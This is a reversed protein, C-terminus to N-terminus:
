GGKKQTWRRWITMVADKNVERYHSLGDRTLYARGDLFEDGLQDLRTQLATELQAQLDAYAPDDILNHLQYPDTENDYLLWPGDLDRVYTYRTTRLGRYPKIDHVLTEWSPALMNLLAAEAGDLPQQRRLTPAHNRGDIGEPIPLDCLGLLTPMIDPADIPLPLEWGEEDHLQPWHLLFPVRISEEWPYGKTQKGHCELMDGHDATVIFITDDMIGAERIANEVIALCDDLAAIHAYYGRLSAIAKERKAEPVNPRLEIPKDAFRQRYEEPATHLPFHPPGWSLMLLFPNEDKAHAQIYAAADRSQAFADYGEWKRPTPDENFYYYSDNYNHNCEFGKWYDFGLQYDRPVFANRRGTQGDPSGYVHWKGVYATNYGGEKFARAISYSQPDLEVDNIYVGTNHPYMGTLLSGRYPCCVSAGSVAHTINISRAALADLVPTECNGDGNYGTAQARWEDAFIFVINPRKKVM